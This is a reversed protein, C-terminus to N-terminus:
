SLFRRPGRSGIREFEDGFVEKFEQYFYKTRMGWFELLFYDSGYLFKDKVYDSQLDYFETKFRQLPEKISAFSTGDPATRYVQEHGEPPEPSFCSLDSYANPYDPNKIIDYIHATWNDLLEYKRMLEWIVTRESRSRDKKLYMWGERTMYNKKVRDYHAQNADGFCDNFDLIHLKRPPEKDLYEMMQSDGGFHAFNIKLDPFKEMVKKWLRPHNLTYAREEIAEGASLGIFQHKFRLKGKKPRSQVERHAHIEGNVRIEKSLCAFGSSSCHVTIPIQNDECWKYVGPSSSTGVLVRDLPSYGVPCYLKFGAFIGNEIHAKVEDLVIRQGHIEQRPDINFFPKVNPHTSNLATLEAIQGEYNTQSIFPMDAMHAPTTSKKLRKLKQRAQELKQVVENREPTSPLKAIKKKLKNLVTALLGLVLKVRQQLMKNSLWGGYNADVYTLDMMLPTMVIDDGYDDRLQIYVESSSPRAAPELITNIRDILGKLMEANRLMEPKIKQIANVCEILERGLLNKSFLHCHIDYHPTPM